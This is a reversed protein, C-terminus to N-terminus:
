QALAARVLPKLSQQLEVSFATAGDLPGQMGLLAFYGAERDIWPTWGFAGPSSVIPCPEASPACELWGGLGYGFGFSRIVAPVNGTEATLYPQTSLTDILDPDILGANEWLLQGLLRSYDDMNAVLGGAAAPNSQGLRQRPATYYRTEASIGLPHLLQTSFVENWSAGTVVEAMRAFVQMHTNGYDFRTGPSAVPTFTEIEAVCEALSIGPTRVCDANPPLGSALSLLQEVTIAAKAGTWGLVDGTTSGLSLYGQQILRLGVIGTVLKSASAVAVRQGHEFDGYSRQFIRQGDRTYIDLAYGDVGAPASAEALLKHIDSFADADSAIPAVSDGGGSCAGILLIFPVAVMALCIRSSEPM